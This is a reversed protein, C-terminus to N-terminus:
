LVKSSSARMQTPWGLTIKTSVKCGGFSIALCSFTSRQIRWSLPRFIDYGPCKGCSYYIYYYLVRALAPKRRMVVSWVQWNQSSHFRADIPRTRIYYWLTFTSNFCFSRSQKKKMGNQFTMTDMKLQFVKKESSKQVSTCMYKDHRFFYVRCDVANRRRREWRGNGFTLDM